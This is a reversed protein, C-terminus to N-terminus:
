MSLSSRHNLAFDASELLNVILIAIKHDVEMIVLMGLNGTEGSFIGSTVVLLIKILLPLVDLARQVEAPFVYPVIIDSCRRM